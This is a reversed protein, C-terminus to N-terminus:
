IFIGESEKKPNGLNEESFSGLSLMKIITIFDIKQDIVKKLENQLKLQNAPTINGRFISKQHHKLYKKCIKFVKAVRYKGIESMEDAIDYFVFVYNYNTTDKKM